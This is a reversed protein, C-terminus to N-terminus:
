KGIYEWDLERFIDSVSWALLPLELRELREKVDGLKTLCARSNKRPTRVVIFM